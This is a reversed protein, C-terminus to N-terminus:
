FYTMSLYKIQIAKDFKRIKGYLFENSQKKISQFYGVQLENAIM